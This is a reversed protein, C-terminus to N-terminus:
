GKQKDRFTVSFIVLVVGAITAPVLWIHEWNHGGEPLINADVIFGSIFYGIFMGVGYTALTILGQAASKYRAGAKNETYIQGTVFFFDCCVGHLIIGGYLMWIGSDGNGEAFLIYRLVWAAMGVLLMRKVGWRLFLMPMLLMFLVESMQGMSMKGAAANVGVENLFPNAFNYYFALPICLAVSALFFVLYSRSKLLALADFGLIEGMSIDKVGAKPPPTNPLSFSFLGLLLSAGAAMKFTIALEGGKEWAFWAIFLNAVIWGITGLVRILPFDKEPNTMQRFSISNALAITPMYLVMYAMIAPLFASYSGATAVYWLLGAGVLHLFGMIKQAAFFRDAILGIIFPAIIAGIAQSLYATGVQVGSANISSKMLYTGMTVFWAGWIFFELFMMASLQLRTFLKM